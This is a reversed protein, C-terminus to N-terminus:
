AIAAASAAAAAAPAGAALVDTKIEHKMKM